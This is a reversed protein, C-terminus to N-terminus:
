EKEDDDNVALLGLMTLGLVGVGALVKAGVTVNMYLITGTSYLDGINGHDFLVNECFYAGGFVGLMAFFIYAISAFGEFKHLFGRNICKATGEYGYGMYIFAIAAVMLVGGQFGGGPSLHGHLTVYFMYMFIFPIVKDTGCKIIVDGKVKINNNEM